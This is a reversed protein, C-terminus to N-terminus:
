TLNFLMDIIMGFGSIHPPLTLHAFRVFNELGGNLLGRSLQPRCAREGGM